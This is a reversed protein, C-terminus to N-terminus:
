GSGGAGGFVMYSTSNEHVRFIRHGVPRDKAVVKPYVFIM